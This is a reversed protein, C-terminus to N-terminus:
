RIKFRSLRKWMNKEQKELKLTLVTQENLLLDTVCDRVSIKELLFETRM